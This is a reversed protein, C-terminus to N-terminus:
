FLKVGKLEQNPQMLNNLTSFLHAKVIPKTIYGDFKEPESVQPILATQAVIPLYKDYKKIANAVEVGDMGPMFIDMLVLDVPNEKVQTIAQKGNEARIINANTKALLHKLYFFNLEEDDVILITKDIWNFEDTLLKNEQQKSFIRNDTKITFYFDTGKGKESKFWIDGGLIEVFSKSLSLGLGTGGYLKDKPQAGTTFTKFVKEGEEETFGIGTDKVYFLLESEESQEYFDVGIVIEGQETFKIANDILYKLVKTLKGLDTVIEVDNLVMNEILTFKLHSKESKLLSEKVETEIEKLLACIKQPSPNYEMQGTNIKSVDLIDEILHLLDNSNKQILDIMQNKSSQDMGESKLLDSFGVIANMPTRIEHSINALFTSKLRDSEEAKEKAYELELTRDRVHLELNTRHKELEKSNLHLIYEFIACMFSLAIYSAIFRSKLPESYDPMFPFNGFLLIASIAILLFVSILGKKLGVTFISLAPFVYFWLFATNAEGGDILFYIDYSFMLGLIFFITKTSSDTFWNYLVLGFTVIAAALLVIGFNSNFHSVNKFGFYTLFVIGIILFVNTIISKRAQENYISSAKKGAFFKHISQSINSM